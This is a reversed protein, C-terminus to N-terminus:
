FVSHPRSSPQARNDTMVYAQKAIDHLADLFIVSTGFINWFIAVDNLFYLIYTLLSIFSFSIKEKLYNKNRNKTSTSFITKM